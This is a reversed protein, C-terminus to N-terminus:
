SKKPGLKIKFITGPGKYFDPDLMMSTAEDKDWMHCFDEDKEDVAFDTVNIRYQGIVLMGQKIVTEADSDKEFLICIDTPQLVEAITKAQSKRMSLSLVNGFVKFNDILTDFLMEHPVRRAVVKKM